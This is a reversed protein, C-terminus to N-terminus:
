EGVDGSFAITVESKVVKKIYEFEEQTVPMKKSIRNASDISVQEAIEKVLEHDM